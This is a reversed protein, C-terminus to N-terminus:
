RVALRSGTSETIVGLEDQPQHVDAIQQLREVDRRLRALERRKRYMRPVLALLGVLLGFLFFLLLIVVLPATFGLEQNGFVGLRVPETNGLAFGLLAIFILIKLLWAILRM